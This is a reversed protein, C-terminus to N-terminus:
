MTFIKKGEFLNTAFLNTWHFIPKFCLLIILYPVYPCMTYKGAFLECRPGGDDIAPEGMFVVKIKNQPSFWSCRM